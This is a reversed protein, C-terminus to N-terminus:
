EKVFKSNYRKGESEITLLYLGQALNSIAIENNILTETKVLSGKSDYINAILNQPVNGEFKINIKNTAPNPFISFAQTKYINLVNTPETNTIYFSTLDQKCNGLSDTTTVIISTSFPVDNIEYKITSDLTITINIRLLTDNIKTATYVPTKNLYKTIPVTVAYNGLGKPNIYDAQYTVINNTPLTYVYNIGMEDQQVPSYHNFYPQKENVIHLTFELGALTTAKKIGWEYLVFYDRVGYVITYYGTDLNSPIYMDGTRTNVNIGLPFISNDKNYVFVLSDNEDDREFLNITNSKGKEITVLPIDKFYSSNIEFGRAAYFINSLFINYKYSDPINKGKYWVKKEEFGANNDEFRANAYAISSEGWVDTQYMVKVLGNCINTQSSKRYKIWESDNSRVNIGARFSISDPIIDTQSFYVNVQYSHLIQVGLNCEECHSRIYSGYSNITQNQAKCFNLLNLLLLLTIFKKM